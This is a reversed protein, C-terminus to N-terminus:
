FSYSNCWSTSKSFSLFIEKSLTECVRISFYSLALTHSYPPHFAIRLSNQERFEQSQRAAHPRANDAHIILHRRVSEPRLELIPQLIYELYNTANFLKEKPLIKVVRFRPSDIRNHGDNTQSSDHTKGNWSTTWWGIVLYNRLRDIFLVIIWWFHRFIAVKPVWSFL